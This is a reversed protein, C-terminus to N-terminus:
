EFVVPAIDWVGLLMAVVATNPRGAALVAAPLLVARGAVAAVGAADDVLGQLELGVHLPPQGYMTSVVVARMQPSGIRITGSASLSFIALEMRSHHIPPLKCFVISTTWENNIGRKRTDATLSPSLDVGRTFFM